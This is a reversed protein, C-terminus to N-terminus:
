TGIKIEDREKSIEIKNAETSTIKANARLPIKRCLLLYLEEVDQQDESSLTNLENPLFTMHHAMKEM